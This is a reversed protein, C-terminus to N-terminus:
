YPTNGSICLLLKGIYRTEGFNNTVLSCMLESLAEVEEQDEKKTEEANAAPAPATSPATSPAPTASKRKDDKPSTLSSQPTMEGGDAASPGSTSHSPSNPNSAAPMSVQRSKEQRELLRKELAGLDDDDEDLLGTYLLDTYHPRTLLSFEKSWKGSLRLLHEM